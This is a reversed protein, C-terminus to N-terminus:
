KTNYLPPTDSFLVGIERSSRFSPATVVNRESVRAAGLEVVSKLSRRWIAFEHLM